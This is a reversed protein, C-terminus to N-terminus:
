IKQHKAQEPNSGSTDSLYHACEPKKLMKNIEKLAKELDWRNDLYFLTMGKIIKLMELQFVSLKPLRALQDPKNEARHGLSALASNKQSLYNTLGFLEALTM